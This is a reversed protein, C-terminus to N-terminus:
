RSWEPCCGGHGRPCPWRCGRRAMPAGTANLPLAPSDPIFIRNLYQHEAGLRPNM